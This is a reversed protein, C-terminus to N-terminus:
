MKLLLEKLQAFNEAFLSAGAGVLQERSRYGWLVSVCRMGANAATQVDTDGDGVFVAEAPSVGLEKLVALTSTPDPKVPIGDRNGFIVSFGFPALLTKGLATAAPQSKNTVIALKIGAARLAALCDSEGAFTKTLANKCAFHVPCYVDKYFHEAQARRDEPLSLQAFRLGGHGVYRRTEELSIKPCGFKELAENMCAHLDPLTDLVTGDLDFIVAKVMTM